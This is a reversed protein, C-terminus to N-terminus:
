CMYNFVPCLCCQICHFCYFGFFNPEYRLHRFSDL